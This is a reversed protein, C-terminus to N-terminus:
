HTVHKEELALTAKSSFSIKAKVIEHQNEAIEPVPQDLQKPFIGNTLPLHPM